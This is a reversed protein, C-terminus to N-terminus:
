EWAVGGDHVDARVVADGAGVRVVVGFVVVAAVVEAQVGYEEEPDDSAIKGKVGCVGGGIGDDRVGELVDSEFVSGCGARETVDGVEDKFVNGVGLRGGPAGVAGCVVWEIGVECVDAFM